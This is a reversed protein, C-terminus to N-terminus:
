KPAFRLLVACVAGFIINPLWVALLPPFDGKISMQFSIQMFLIYMFSLLVGIGLHMGLGGRIKRSALSVGILTLIFTSFPFAIRKYKEILFPELDEAGKDRQEQIFSNLEFFDMTEVIRADPNFDEPRLNLTTDKQTGDIVTDNIGDFTRIKYNYIKWKSSTTDWKIYDSMLKEKLKNGDFTEMSFKQGYLYSFSEVYIFTTSDIKMHINRKSPRYSKKFYQEEFSIRPAATHPTVFNSLFYSFIGIIAASIMYPVLLREFRVGCSRIAIFESKAAMASTFIIVAVFVLIFSFVNAYYPIFNLYYDFIIAELPAKKELFDDIKEAFDFVVAIGVALVIIFFFTGLFKKIIYKDLTKM